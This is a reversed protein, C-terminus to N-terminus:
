SSMPNANEEGADLFAYFVIYTLPANLLRGDLNYTYRFYCGRERPKHQHIANVFIGSDRSWLRWAPQRGILSDLSMISCGLSWRQGKHETVYGHEANEAARDLHAAALSELDRTNNMCEAAPYHIALAELNVLSAYVVESFVRFHVCLPQDYKQSLEREVSVSLERWRPFDSFVDLFSIKHTTTKFRKVVSMKGDQGFHHFIQTQLPARPDADHMDGFFGVLTKRLEDYSFEM